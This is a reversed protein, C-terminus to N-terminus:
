QRQIARQVVREALVQSNHHEMLDLVVAVGEARLLLEL